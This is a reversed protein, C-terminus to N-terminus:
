KICKLNQMKGEEYTINMDDSLMFVLFFLYNYTMGGGRERKPQMEYNCTYSCHFSLM